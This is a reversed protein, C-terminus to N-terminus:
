PNLGRFGKGEVAEGLSLLVGFCGGLEDEMEWESFVAPVDEVSAVDGLVGVMDVQESWSRLMLKSTVPSSSSRVTLRRSSPVSNSIIIHFTLGFMGRVVPWGSEFIELLPEITKYHVLAICSCSSCNLTILFNLYSNHDHHSILLLM